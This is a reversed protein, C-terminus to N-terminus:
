RGSKGKRPGRKTGKRRTAAKTPPTTQPKAPSEPPGEDARRASEIAPNAPGQASILARDRQRAMDTYAAFGFPEDQGSEIGGMEEEIRRQLEDTLSHFARVESIPMTFAEGTPTVVRFVSCQVAGSLDREAQTGTISCAFLPHVEAIPIREGAHTLIAMRGDLQVPQNQTAILASLSTLMERVVNHWFLTRLALTSEARPSPPASRLPTDVHGQTTRRRRALAM